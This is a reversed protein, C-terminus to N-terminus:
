ESRRSRNREIRSRKQKEQVKPIRSDDNRAILKVPVDRGRVRVEEKKVMFTDRNYQIWTQERVLDQGKGKSM